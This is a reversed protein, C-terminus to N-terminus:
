HQITSYSWIFLHVIFFLVLVQGWELTEQASFPRRKPRVVVVSSDSPKPMSGPRASTSDIAIDEIDSDHKMQEQTM